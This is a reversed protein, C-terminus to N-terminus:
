IGYSNENFVFVKALLFSNFLSSCLSHIAYKDSPNQYASQEFKGLQLLCCKSKKKKKKKKKYKKLSILSSIEHSDKAM